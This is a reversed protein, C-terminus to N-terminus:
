RLREAWYRGLRETFTNRAVENAIRELDIRQRYTPRSRVFNIVPWLDVGHTGTKAYIGPSLHTDDRPHIAFYVVGGIEAFGGKSRRRNALKDRNKQTMSPKYRAQEWNSLSRFYSLIQIIFGNRINGYADLPARKAPVMYWGKPLVGTYHLAAEANKFRRHGGLYEPDLVDGFYSGKGLTDDRVGVKSELRDPFPAALDTGVAKMTWPTPRDFQTRMEHDTRLKSERAVDNLSKAAAGLFARPANRIVREFGKWDGGLTVTTVTAM